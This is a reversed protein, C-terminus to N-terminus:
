DACPHMYTHFYTNVYTSSDINKHMNAHVYAHVYTHVYTHMYTHMYTHIYTHICTRIYTHMYIHIYTHINMVMHVGNCACPMWRNTMDKYDCSVFFFTKDCLVVGYTCLIYMVVLTNSMNQLNEVLAQHIFLMMWMVTRKNILELFSIFALMLYMLHKAYFSHQDRCVWITLLFITHIHLNARVKKLVWLGQEKGRQLIQLRRESDEEDSFAIFHERLYTKYYSQSDHPLAKSARLLHRYLLLSDKM